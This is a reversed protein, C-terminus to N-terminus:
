NASKLVMEQGEGTNYKPKKGKRKPAQIRHNKLYLYLTHTRSEEFSSGMITRKVRREDPFPDVKMNM